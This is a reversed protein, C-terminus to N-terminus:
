ASQSLIPSGAGNGANMEELVVAFFQLFAHEPIARSKM